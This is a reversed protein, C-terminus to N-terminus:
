EFPEVHVHKDDMASRREKTMGPKRDTSTSRIWWCVLKCCTGILNANTAETTGMSRGSDCHRRGCSTAISVVEICVWGRMRADM